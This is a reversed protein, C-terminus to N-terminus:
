PLVFLKTGAIAVCTEGASARVLALGTLRGFAPLLAHRRGLVFCPLRASAFAGGDIRAGPHVHGCLAYAPLRTAPEHCLAFPGLAYPEAVVDVRWSPPPDGAKADHNGRVVTVVLDAHRGRWACFAADLAEVRGAAAHLFDGLVVLRRARTAEVLQTLRGLDDATAGRPIAVGGARLSAAKGLHVDTVFATAERPWFLARAALLAVREGALTATVSGDAAQALAPTAEALVSPQRFSDPVGGVDRTPNRARACRRL